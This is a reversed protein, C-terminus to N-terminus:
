LWYYQKATFFSVNEILVVYYRGVLICVFMIYVFMRNVDAGVYKCDHVCVRGRGRGWGLSLQLPLFDAFHMCVYTCLMM